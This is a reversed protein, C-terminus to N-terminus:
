GFINVFYVLTHCIAPAFTSRGCRRALGLILAFGYLDLLRALWMLPTADWAQAYFLDAPLHRLGFLVMGLCFGRRAGYATGIRTQILGRFMTEEGAVTIGVTFILFLLLELLRFPDETPGIAARRGPLSYPISDGVGISVVNSWGLALLFSIIGTTFTRWGQWTWGLAVRISGAPEPCYYKVLLIPLAINPLMILGLETLIGPLLDWGLYWGGTFWSFSGVLLFNAILWTLLLRKLM